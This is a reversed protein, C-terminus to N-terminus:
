DSSGTLRAYYEVAMRRIHEDRDSLLPEIVPLLAPTLRDHLASMAEFRVSSDRDALMGVLRKTAQETDEALRAYYEVAMRRIHEDRDSLLPEIVPLLAPTLRDHLASMAEFRVSSDRDALMGVLRKTAQETDEALRAYYEVAMRRIHEDRDSFLPEIVPLLAPTLRDHLASMAEFRVSSDRDALMGVLRKTAQETDEALRAYYEVAMRRVHEDRDSFLPEIVPLLAPTLRDHLASMAEFRVGPDRDALLDVLRAVAAPYGRGGSNSTPPSDESQSVVSEETVAPGESTAVLQSPPLSGMKSRLARVLRPYGDSAFLDVRHWRALRQPLECEELRAPIVYISGDPQREAVDLAIAIEKHVYGARTISADSLCVVVFDADRVAHQIAMEWDQGPLLEEEDLWPYFGDGALRRHLKRVDAKDSSAHCLFVRLAAAQARM